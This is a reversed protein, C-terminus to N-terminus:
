QHVTHNCCRADCATLTSLGAPACSPGVPFSRLWAEVEAHVVGLVSPPLLVVMGTMAALHDHVGEVTEPVREGETMGPGEQCEAASADHVVGGDAAGTAVV